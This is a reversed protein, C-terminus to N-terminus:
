AELDVELAHRRGEFMDASMAGKRLLELTM